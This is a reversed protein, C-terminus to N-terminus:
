NIQCNQATLSFTGENGSTCNIQDVSLVYTGPTSLVFSPQSYSPLNSGVQTMEFTTIIAGGTTKLAAAASRTGNNGDWFYGQPVITISYGAALTFTATDSSACTGQAYTDGTVCSFPITTTTTTTSTTTPVVTTTTTTTSTTPAGTTTTSTTSTTTTSTTPIGSISLDISNTCTGTSTVTVKTATDDVSVPKGSLLPSLTATNPSVVGVDATLNFNPGLDAGLGSNLTLLINM